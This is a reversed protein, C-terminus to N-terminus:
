GSDCHRPWVHVLGARRTRLELVRGSRRCSPEFLKPVRHPPGPAERWESRRHARRSTTSYFSASRKYREAISFSNPRCPDLPANSVDLYKSTYKNNADFPRGTNKMNYYIPIQGENIPFTATLKGSPNNAGYLTEVMAQGAMTGLHWTNLIADVNEKMWPICLPRGAMLLVVVPKGLKVMEELLQQQSGPLGIESRSAAEGSQEFNEGLAMVVVDAQRAIKIAEQKLEDQSEAGFSYGAAYTVAVEPAVKKFGNL